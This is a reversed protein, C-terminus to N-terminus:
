AHHANSCNMARVKASQSALAEHKASWEAELSAYEALAAAQSQRQRRLEELETTLMRQAQAEASAKADYQATLTAIEEDKAQQLEQLQGMTVQYYEKEGFEMSRSKLDAVGAELQQRAIAHASQEARLEAALKDRAALGRQVEAQAEELLRQQRELLKRPDEDALQQRTRHIEATSHGLSELQKALPSLSAKLVEVQRMGRAESDERLESLKALLKQQERELTEARTAKAALQDKLYKTLAMGLREGFDFREAVLAENQIELERIRAGMSARLMELEATSAHALYSTQAERQAQEESLLEQLRTYVDKNASYVLPDIRKNLGASLWQEVTREWVRRREAFAKSEAERHAHLKAAVTRLEEGQVGVAKTLRQIEAEAGRQRVAAADLLMKLEGAEHEARLKLERYEGNAADSEILQVRTTALLDAQYRLGQELDAALEDARAVEGSLAVLDAERRLVDVTSILARSEAAETRVGSLYSADFLPRAL